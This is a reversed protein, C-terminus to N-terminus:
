GFVAIAAPRKVRPVITEMVRFLHDMKENGMYATVLDQGVVLDVNHPDCYVLVAKNKGIRSSRLFVGGVLSRVRDVEMIGTGPQIRHLKGWLDNSVVLARQGSSGRDDLTEIAKAVDRVPNEGQDWDSIAIKNAGKATLLGEIGLEKDGHFILDDERRAALMAADTAAQLGAGSENEIDRWSILFDSYLAPVQLFRRGGVGLPALDSQGWFDGAAAAKDAVVDLPVDQLRGGLPGVLSLFRRGVLIRKAEAVVAADIAGWQGDTLPAGDRMLYRM